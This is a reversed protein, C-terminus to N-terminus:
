GRRALRRLQERRGAAPGAQDPGDRPSDEVVFATKPLSRMEAVRAALEAAQAPALSRARRHDPGLTAPDVEELLGLEALTEVDDRTTADYIERLYKRRVDDPLDAAVLRRLARAVPARSARYRAPGAGALATWKRVFEEGSPADYHLVTLRPDEHREADAGDPALAGHLTLVCGSAPRVGTKGMVHGHFYAQNTAEPVRGLVHLLTLDADDLLRKFSRPRAGAGPEPDWQSVAEWPPLWVADLGPPVEALAERDLRAVEDGDVHFLWEAWELPELVARVWAANARQRVNLGAPREGQWWDRRGAPLCTVHPHDALSAAVEVQEPEAPADLLVVMHDVGSALNAAVFFGVNDVSDKVTSVTFLM